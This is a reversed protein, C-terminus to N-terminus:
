ALMGKLEEAFIRMLLPGDALIHKEIWKAGASGDQTTYPGWGGNWEHMKAAYSTNYVVTIEDPKGAYSTAPNPQEKAGGKVAPAPGVGILKNGVFVSGSGRLVGFRIPPKIPEAPSGVNMYTLMQMAVRAKALEIKAEALMRAGQLKELLPSFDMAFAVKM